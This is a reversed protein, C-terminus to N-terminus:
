KVAKLHREGADRRGAQNQTWPGAGTGPVSTRTYADVLEVRHDIREERDRAKERENAEYVERQYRAWREWNRDDHMNGAALKEFVRSTPVVFEGDDGEIPTVTLPVSMGNDILLHYYGPRMPVGPVVRDLARVMIISPDIRQLRATFEALLPDDDDLRISRLVDQRFSLTRQALEYAVTPPVLLHPM